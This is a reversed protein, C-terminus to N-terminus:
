GAEQTANELSVQNTIPQEATILIGHEALQQVFESAHAMATEFDVDFRACIQDRVLDSLPTGGDLASWIASGVANLVFLKSTRPCMIVMEEELLRAAVASSRAVFM